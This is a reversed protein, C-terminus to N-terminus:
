TFCNGSPPWPTIPGLFWHTRRGKARSDCQSWSLPTPAPVSTGLSSAWRRQSAGSWILTGWPIRTCVTWIPVNFCETWIPVIFCETWIPVIFCETWIPVIFCKSNQFCIMSTCVTWILIFCKSNHFCIMSTCVTWILVIFCGSVSVSSLLGHQHVSNLHSCYFMWVLPLLGHQAILRQMHRYADMCFLTWEKTRRSKLKTESVSLVTNM